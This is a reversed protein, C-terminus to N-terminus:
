VIPIVIIYHLEMKQPKSLYFCEVCWSWALPWFHITLKTSFYFQLMMASVYTFLIFLKLRLDCQWPIFVKTSVHLIGLDPVRLSSSCEICISLTTEKLSDITFFAVDLWLRQFSLEIVQQVGFVIRRLIKWQRLSLYKMTFLLIYFLIWKSGHYKNDSREQVHKKSKWRHVTSSPRLCQRRQKRCM